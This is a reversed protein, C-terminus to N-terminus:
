NSDTKQEATHNASATYQSIQDPQQPYLSNLQKSSFNLSTSMEFSEAM